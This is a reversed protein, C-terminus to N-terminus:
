KKIRHVGYPDIYPGPKLANYDNADKIHPVTGSGGDERPKGGAQKIVSEATARNSDLKGLLQAPDQHLGGMVKEFYEIGGIGRIPHLGAQFAGYSILDNNLEALDHPLSGYKGQIERLRGEIPGTGKALEPNSLATRIRADLDLMTEARAGASRAISTPTNLTNEGGMTIAAGSVHAGPTVLKSVYGGKGDPELMQGQPAHQPEPEKKKALFKQVIALPQDEIAVTPDGGVAKIVAKDDASLVTGRPQKTAFTQVEEATADPNQQIFMETANTPQKGKSADMIAHAQPDLTPDAASHFKGTGDIVGIIKGTAGEERIFQPEKTAVAKQTAEQYRAFAAPDKQFLEVLNTAQKAQPNKLADAEANLHGASATEQERKAEDNAADREQTDEVQRQHVLVDHHGSTGPIAMEVGPFFGRGLADLIGLPIRAWPNHIQQWGPQGTDAKTHAGVGQIPPKTLRKLEDSVQGSGIPAVTTEPM